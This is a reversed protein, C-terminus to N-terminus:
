GLHAHIACRSVSTMVEQQHTEASSRVGESTKKKIRQQFSVSPKKAKISLKEEQNAEPTVLNVIPPSDNPSGSSSIVIVDDDGSEGNASETASDHNSSAANSSEGDSDAGGRRRALLAVPQGFGQEPSTGQSSAAPGVDGYDYFEDDWSGM